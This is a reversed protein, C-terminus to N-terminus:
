AAPQQAMKRYVSLLQEVIWPTKDVLLHSTYIDIVTLNTFKPSVSRIEGHGILDLSHNQYHVAWTLHNNTLPTIPSAWTPDLFHAGVIRASLLGQASQGQYSVGGLLWTAANGGMSYGALFKPVGNRARSDIFNRLQEWQWWNEVFARGGSLKNVEAAIYDIGESLARDFQGRLLYVEFNAV